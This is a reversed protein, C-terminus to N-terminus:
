PVPKKGIRLELTAPPVKDSNGAGTLLGFQRLTQMLPQAAPPLKGATADARSVSLVAGIPDENYAAEIIGSGTGIGTWEAKRLVDILDRAFIRCEVDGLICVISIKQGKFPRVADLLVQKQADTLRRPSPQAFAVSALFLFALARM